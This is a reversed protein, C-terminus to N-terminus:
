NDMSVGVVIGNCAEIKLLKVGIVPDFTGSAVTSRRVVENTAKKIGWFEDNYDITADLYAADSTVIAIGSTKSNKYYPYTNTLIM